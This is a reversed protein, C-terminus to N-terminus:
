VGHDREFKAPFRKMFTKTLEKRLKKNITLNSCVATNMNASHWGYAKEIDCGYGPFNDLLEVEWQHNERQHWDCLKFFKAHRYFCAILKLHKEKTGSVKNSIFDDSGNCLNIVLCETM